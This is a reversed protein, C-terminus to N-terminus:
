SQQKREKERKENKKQPFFLRVGPEFARGGDEGRTTANLSQPWALSSFCPLQFVTALLSFYGGFRAIVLIALIYIEPKQKNALIKHQSFSRVNSHRLQSKSAVVNYM